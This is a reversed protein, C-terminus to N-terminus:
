SKQYGDGFFRIHKGCAIRKEATPLGDFVATTPCTMICQGTRRPVAKTLADTSFGFVLVAAGVRGDPTEDTSLYREVGIEGDCAIVSASDGCFERLAAALWYDDHATVLIRVFRM